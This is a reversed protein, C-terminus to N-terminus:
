LSLYCFSFLLLLLSLFIIINCWHLFELVSLVSVNKWFFILFYSPTKEDILLASRKFLLFLYFTSLITLLYHLYSYFFSVYIYTKYVSCVQCFLLYPLILFLLCTYSYIYIYIKKIKTKLSVFIEYYSLIQLDM